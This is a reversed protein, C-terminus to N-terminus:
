GQQRGTAQERQLFNGHARWTRATGRCIVHSTGVYRFHLNKRDTVDDVIHIKPDYRADGAAYKADRRQNPIVLAARLILIVV